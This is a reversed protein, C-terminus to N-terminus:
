ANITWPTVTGAVAAKARGIAAGARTMRLPTLIHNEFSFSQAQEMYGNDTQFAIGGIHTWSPLGNFPYQGTPAPVSTIAVLVGDLPGPVTFGAAIPVPTGTTVNALGPWIPPVRATGGPEIAAIADLIDDLKDLVGGPVDTIKAHIEEVGDKIAELGYGANNILDTVKNSLSLEHAALGASLAAIALLV